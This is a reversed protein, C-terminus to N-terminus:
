FDKFFKISDYIIRSTDVFASYMYLSSLFHPINFNASYLEEHKRTLLVGRPSKKDEWFHIRARVSPKQKIGIVWLLISGRKAQNWSCSSVCSLVSPSSPWCVRSWFGSGTPWLETMAATLIRKSSRQCTPSKLSMVSCFGKGWSSGATCVWSSLSFVVVSVFPPFSRLGRQDPRIFALTARETIPYHLEM